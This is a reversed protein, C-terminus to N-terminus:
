SQNSATPGAPPLEAEDVGHARLREIIWTRATAEDEFLALESVCGAFIREWQTRFITSGPFPPCVLAMAVRGTAALTRVGQTYVAEAEPTLLAGEPDVIGLSAWPAGQMTEAWRRLSMVFSQMAEANTAGGAVVRLMRGERAIEILGGHPAFTPM